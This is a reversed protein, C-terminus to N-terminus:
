VSRCYIEVFRYKGSAVISSMQQQTLWQESEFREPPEALCYNFGATPSLKALAALSELTEKAFEPLNCELSLLPVQSSLGKIVELEFGEVDIKIYSPVGYEAILRDLTTISIDVISNATKM